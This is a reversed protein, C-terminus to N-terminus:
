NKKLIFGLWNGRFKGNLIIDQDCYSDFEAILTHGTFLEIIKRESFFWAPYSAQYINEPVKQITLIDKPSNTFATRDILIYPFNFKLFANIWEYPNEVCQLVGSLLLVNPKRDKLCDEISSYFKLQEDAICNNGCEVFHQQEVVSWEIKSLSTLFSKNQFYSSGLSGGFDLVSLQLNNEIAAKQLGALLGWSYEIKDFLVSDREYVAEGTKV